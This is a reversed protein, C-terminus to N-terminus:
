PLVGEPNDADADHLPQESASLVEIALEALAAQRQALHELLDQESDSLEEGSQRRATLSRTQEAIEEQLQLLLRIQVLSSWGPGGTEGEESSPTPSPQSGPTRVDELLRRMDTLRRVALQQLQQTAEDVTRDALQTAAQTMLEQTEVLAARLVPADATLEVAPSLDGGLQSQAGALQQLTRLQARSLSGREQQAADLRITEDLLGQQRASLTELLSAFRAMEALARTVELEERMRALQREAQLLDDLAEQQATIAAPNVDSELADAAAETSRSARAATAAADGLQRRMLRQAWEQADAALQQQQQRLEQLADANDAASQSLEQSAQLAESQRQRLSEAEQQAEEVHKLLTEPSPAGIGRIATDLSELTQMVRQQINVADPVDNQGIQEAAQRMDGALTANRLVELAQSVDDASPLAEEGAASMLEELRAELRDVQRATDQQRSALRALDAQQQPTLADTRRAVTDRGVTLTEQNLQQQGEVIDALERNLDFQLQWEQFLALLMALSTAASEHAALASSFASDVLSERDNLSESSLAKRADALSQNLAAFVEGQLLAFQQQVTALRASTAADDLQNWALEDLIGSVRPSVGRHEDFLEDAIREQSGTVRKLVDVDEASLTRATSWQLQLERTQQWSGNQLAHARELSQAIGTQRAQLEQLKEAPSVVTLVRPLSRGVHPPGLDYADGAEARMQVIRGPTLGMDAISLETELVVEIQPGDPLLFPYSLEGASGPPNSLALRVETLKLDDRAQVTVPLRAQPTVTLDSAPQDIAVTPEGDAIGRVEIRMADRSILGNGDILEFWCAFRGASAIEFEVSGRRSGSELRVDHPAQGDRRFRAQSLPMNSTMELRVRTGVVGEIPGEASSSEVPLGTYAPPTLEVQLNEVAPRPVFAVAHWPMRDDDGGSARISVAEDLQPVVAVYAEDGAVGAPSATRRLPETHVRGQQDRVHLRVEDPLTGGADAVYVRMPEGAPALRGAGDALLEEGQEDLLVLTHQRPWAPASGPQMLRQLALSAREQDAAIVAATLLCALVALIAPALLRRSNLLTAPDLRAIRPELRAILARQLAAAGVEPPCREASFQVASSLANRWEPQLKEIELALAVDSCSRRLPRIILQVLCGAGVAAISWGAALRFLAPELQFWWDAACALLVLLLTISFTWASGSLVVLSRLRARLAGLKATLPDM